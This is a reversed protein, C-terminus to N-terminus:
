IQCRSQVEVIQNTFDFARIRSLPSFNTWSYTQSRLSSKTRSKTQLSNKCNFYQINYPSTIIPLFM